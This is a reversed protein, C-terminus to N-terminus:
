EIMECLLKRKKKKKSVLYDSILTKDQVSRFELSQIAVIRVM